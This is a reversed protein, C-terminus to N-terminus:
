AGESGLPDERNPLGFCRDFGDVHRLHLAQFVQPAQQGVLAHSCLGLEQEEGAGTEGVAEPPRRAAAAVDFENVESPDVVPLLLMAEPSPMPTTIVQGVCIGRRSVRGPWGAGAVSVLRSGGRWGRM